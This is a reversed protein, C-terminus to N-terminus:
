FTAETSISDDCDDPLNEARALLVKFLIRQDYESSLFEDIERFQETSLLVYDEKADVQKFSTGSKVLTYNRIKIRWPTASKEGDNTIPQCTLLLSAGAINDADNINPLLDYCYEKNVTLEGPEPPVLTASFPRITTIASVTVMGDIDPTGALKKTFTKTGDPLQEILEYKPADELPVYNPDPTAYFHSFAPYRIRATVSSHKGKKAATRIEFVAYSNVGTVVPM